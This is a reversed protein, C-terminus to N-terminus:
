ESKVIKKGLKKLIGALDKPVTFVMQKGKKMQQLVGRKHLDLLDTRATQYVINHSNRHGEITYQQYPHKLAHRVLAV